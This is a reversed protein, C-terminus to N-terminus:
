PGAPKLVGGGRDHSADSSARAKRQQTQQQAHWHPEPRNCEIITCPHISLNRGQQRPSSLMIDDRQNASSYSTHVTQTDTSRNPM